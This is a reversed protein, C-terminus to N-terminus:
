YYDERWESSQRWNSRLRQGGANYETDCDPCTPYSMGFWRTVTGGCECTKEWDPVETVEETPVVINGSDLHVEIMGFLPDMISNHTEIVRGKYGRTMVKVGARFNNSM